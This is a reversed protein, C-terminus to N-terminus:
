NSGFIHYFSDTHCTQQNCNYNLQIKTMSFQLIKNRLQGGKCYRCKTQKRGNSSNILM